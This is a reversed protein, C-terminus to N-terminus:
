GLEHEGGILTLFRQRYLWCKREWVSLTMSFVFSLSYKGGGQLWLTGRCPHHCLLGPPYDTSERSAKTLLSVAQEQCHQQSSLPSVDCSVEVQGLLPPIKSVWSSLWFGYGQRPTVLIGWPPWAPLTSPSRISRASNLQYEGNRRCSWHLFLHALVPPKFISIRIFIIDWINWKLLFDSMMDLILPSGLSLSFFCDTFGLVLAASINSYRVSM